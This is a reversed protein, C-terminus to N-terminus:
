RSPERGVTDAKTAGREGMPRPTGTTTDRTTQHEVESNIEAAVIVIMASLYLWLLMVVIAGLSGYTENYSGFRSVYFRLGISVAVWAVVAFISGLSVWQWQPDARDPGYRFLAALGAAVLLGVSLWVVAQLATGTTGGGGVVSAVSTLAATAVIVLVAGLTFGVHLLKRKWFPRSDPDEDYAINIAEVLHGMGSSASWLALLLGVVAAAGLAGNSGDVVARLQQGIVQAVEEPATGEIRDVLSTVNSPDAVLGYISFVAGFLPVLATFGFFAVGAASLPVHDKGFEEKLRLAVDWWGRPPIETPNDADRGRESAVTAM